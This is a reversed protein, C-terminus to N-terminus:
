DLDLRYNIVGNGVESFGIGNSVLFDRVSRDSPLKSDDLTVEGWCALYRITRNLVKQFDFLTLKQGAPITWETLSDVYLTVRNLLTFGAIIDIEQEGESYTISREPGVQSMEIRYGNSAQLASDRALSSRLFFLKRLFRVTEFM